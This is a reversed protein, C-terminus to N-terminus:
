FPLGADRSQKGLLGVDRTTKSEVCLLDIMQMAHSITMSDIPRKPNKTMQRSWRGDSEPELTGDGQFFGARADLTGPPQRGPTWRGPRGQFSPDM